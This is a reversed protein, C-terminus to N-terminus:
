QAQLPRCRHHVFSRRMSTIAKVFTVRTLEGGVQAKVTITSYAEINGIVQVEIPVDRTYPPSV